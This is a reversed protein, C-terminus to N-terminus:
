LKFNSISTKAVLKLAGSQAIDPSNTGPLAHTETLMQLKNLVDTLILYTIL